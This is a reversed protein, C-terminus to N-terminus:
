DGTATRDRGAAKAAYLNRDALALLAAATARGDPATAVGISVTVPHTGTVPEWAYSRIRLRLRECRAVAAPADAEPFILLFEEGGLRAAIAPGTAAERLLKGVHQLVADGTAHSLTDNIRKFHDLDAIAVSIPRHRGAAEALLAPLRADVYRRNHLGTLADRHAMERFHESARRAENAEFVAQLARARAEREASRLATSDTYFLQHEEYAERYRGAAAHLAAQEQRCQARLGGLGSTECERVARDLADQAAAHRGALRRAEALTLLCEATGDGDADLSQGALVGALTAEIADYRGGMLEVRALTDLEKAALPRGARGASERMREALARAAPEDGGEYANYTLNNLVRLALGGDGAEAALRLTEHYHREGDAMSGNDELAVSLMLLHRARIGAPADEPLGAVCQVAHALSEPLDGVLRYFMTLARHARATLYPSDHQDAWALVAHAARGGAGLRGERLLVDALLLATRQAAQEDGLEDALRRAEGIPGRLDRFDAISSCELDTLTAALTARAGLLAAQDRQAAETTM